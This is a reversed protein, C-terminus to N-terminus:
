GQGAARARQYAPRATARAQYAALTDSLVGGLAGRWMALGTSVAIDALTFEAGALWPGEGLSDSLYALSQQAVAAQSRVSWNGKDAEPATFRATMLPGLAAGFTAESFVTWQLIRAFTRPDDRPLLPTPGHRDALYLMMAVSESMGVGGDDDQLYPVSGLPNLARYHDPTPFPLTEVRCALGMEECQWIVRLGRAGGAFNYITIM